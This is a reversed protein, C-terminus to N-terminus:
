ASSGLLPRRATSSHWWLLIMDRHAVMLARTQEFLRLLDLSATTDHGRRKLEASRDRQEAIRREAEALRLTAEQVRELECRM